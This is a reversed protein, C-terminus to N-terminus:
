ANIEGSAVKKVHVSTGMLAEFSVSSMSQKAYHFWLDAYKSNKTEPWIPIGATYHILKPQLESNYPYGVIYNWEPPLAGIGNDSWVEMHQPTENEILDPTLRKCMDCDFLMLSPWEFRAANKVVSVGCDPNGLKFLEAIDHDVVMDADLFLAQGEYDCLWPVLYRSYTFETLGKRTIPLTHLTLFTIAVPQSCNAIISHALVTPAVPQRPDTGIFIRLM